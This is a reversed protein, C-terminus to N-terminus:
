TDIEVYRIDIRYNNQKVVPINSVIQRYRELQESDKISGTKYDILLIEKNEKDIQMRDIRYERKKHDFVTLENFVKDWRRSFVHGESAVFKGIKTIITAIRDLPILNGYRSVTKKRAYELEEKSAYKILSLYYHALDGYLIQQNTLYVTKHNLKEVEKYKAKELLKSRQLSVLRDYEVQDVEPLKTTTELSPLSGIESKLLAKDLEESDQLTQQDINLYHLLTELYLKKILQVRMKEEDSTTSAAALVGEKREYVSFISLSSRARTLAVYINNLEELAVRDNKQQKLSYDFRELISSYNYSIRFEELNTYSNNFRYLYDLDGSFNGRSGSTDYYFFVHDFELGKAKHITMLQLSDINEICAQRFQENKENDALFTLLGNVNKPYESSIQIFFSAVTELFLHLNKINHDEPFLGTVNFERILSMIFGILDAPSYEDLVRLTKKISTHHNFEERLLQIISKEETTARNHLLAIEKLERAPLLCYDSRLFRLLHLINQEAIFRLIHIMPKIVQHQLFSFSSELYYDIGYEELASAIDQLHNNNRALIVSRAPNINRKEYLPLVDTEVFARCPNSTDINDSDTQSKSKNMFSISLYGDDEKSHSSIDKDYNWHQGYEKLRTALNRFILNIFGTMFRTSRYTMDLSTSDKSQIIAPMNLLLEREGSRWGYISQKEDGVIIVGGYERSGSGSIIESIIPYLLKHQIIGTDQFEDILIFRTRTSLYEYFRNSVSGDLPDILSLEPEYMYKFTYYAIDAHTFIKDRMKLRDYETLIHEALKLIEKEEPLLYKQFIYLCFFQRIIEIESNIREKFESDSKRIKQNNWFRLDKCLTKWKEFLVREDKLLEILESIFDVISDANVLRKYPERFLSKILTPDESSENYGAVLYNKIEEALMEFRERFATLNKAALQEREAEDNTVKLERILQLLWRNEIISLILKDFHELSNNKATRFIRIFSESDKSDSFIHNYLLPLYRSNVENDISFSTIGIYPAIVTKFISNIFSDITSIQLKHKNVLMQEYVKRLYVLETEGLKLGFLKELNDELVRGKDNDSLLNELHEIIATRIEYTAKRTFTIVLIEDFGIEYDRYQLLLNIYELSLRYTKGTGASATIIKKVPARM